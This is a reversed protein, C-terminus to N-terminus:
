EGKFLGILEVASKDKLLGRGSADEYLIKSLTSELGAAMDLLVKMNGDSYPRLADIREILDAAKSKPHIKDNSAKIVFNELISVIGFSYEILIGVCKLFIKDYDNDELTSNNAQKKPEPGQLIESGTKLNTRIHSALYATRTGLINSLEGLLQVNKDTSLALLSPDLVLPEDKSVKDGVDKLEGAFLLSFAFAFMEYQLNNFFSLGMQLNKEYESDKMEQHSNM